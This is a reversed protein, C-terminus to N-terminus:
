NHVGGVRCCRILSVLFFWHWVAVWCDSESAHAQLCVCWMPLVWLRMQSRSQWHPVGGKPTGIPHLLHIQVLCGTADVMSVMIWCGGCIGSLVVGTYGM